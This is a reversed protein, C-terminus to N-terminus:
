KEKPCNQAEPGVGSLEYRAKLGRFGIGAVENSFGQDGTGGHARRGAGHKDHHRVGM